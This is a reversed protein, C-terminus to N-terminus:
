NFATHAKIRNLVIIGDAKSAHKDLYAPVGNETYGMLAVDMSSRIETGMSEETIGLHSLIELQGEATAGGHSGMAPVLYPRFGFHKVADVTHKIIRDIQHIGRSGATIAI